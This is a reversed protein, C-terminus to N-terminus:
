NLADFRVDKEVRVVCLEIANDRRTFVNVVQLRIELSDIVPHLLPDHSDIGLFTM